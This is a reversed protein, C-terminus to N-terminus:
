SGIRALFMHGHTFEVVAASPGTLLEFGFPVTLKGSTSGNSALKSVAASPCALKACNQAFVILGLTTSAIARDTDSVRVSSVRALSTTSFRDLFQHGNTHFALEYLKSGALTLPWDVQGKRAHTAGGATAHVLFGSNSSGRVDQFFLGTSGAAMDAPFVQKDVIHVAPSTVNIRSLRAFEFGSSDTGWDTWSWLTNGASLLGAITIPTVPSTVTWHRVSSGHSRTYETITLGTQVFLDKSNAALAVVNGSAHVAVKPAKSGTVVYVVRSRSYFVTGDPAEAFINKFINSTTGLAIRAQQHLAASAPGAPAAALAPSAGAAMLGALAPVAVPALVRTCATRLSM